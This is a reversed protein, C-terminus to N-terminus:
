VLHIEHLPIRHEKKHKFGEGDMMGHVYCEGIFQYREITKATPSTGRARASEGSANTILPPMLSASSKRRHQASSEQM